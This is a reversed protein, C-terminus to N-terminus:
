GAARSDGHLWVNVARRFAAPTVLDHEQWGRAAVVGAYVAPDLGAGLERVSKREPPTRKRAPPPAPPPAPAEAASTQDEEHNAM